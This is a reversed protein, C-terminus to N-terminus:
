KVLEILNSQQRQTRILKEAFKAQVSGTATLIDMIRQPPALIDVVVQFGRMHKPLESDPPPLGEKVLYKNVNDEEFYLWHMVEIDPALRIRDGIDRLQGQIVGKWVFFREADIFRQKLPVVEGIPARGLLSDLDEENSDLQAIAQERALNRVIHPDDLEHIKDPDGTDKTIFNGPLERLEKRLHEPAAKGISWKGNKFVLSM